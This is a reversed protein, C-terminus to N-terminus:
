GGPPGPTEPPGPNDPPGGGPPGGGPPGGGPPGGGPPAGGPPGSGPPGIGDPPGGGRGVDERGQQARERGRERAQEAIENAPNGRGRAEDATELGRAANERAAEAAAAPLEIVRTVADPRTAGEPMLEMTLDLTEIEPAENEQALAGTALILALATLAIRIRVTKGRM